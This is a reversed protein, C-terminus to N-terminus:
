GHVIRALGEHHTNEEIAAILEPVFTFSDRRLAKDTLERIWCEVLNPWPSSSPTFPLHL